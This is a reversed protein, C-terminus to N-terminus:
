FPTDAEAQALTSWGTEGTGAPSPEPVAARQERIPEAPEQPPAPRSAAAPPAKLFSSTGSSLDHGIASARLQLVRHTEGDQGTWEHPRVVGQVIVPQGRRLSAMANRGLRDWASVEYWTTGGDGWRGDPGLVRSTRAVTFEVVEGKSTSKAAPDRGLRGTITITEAM